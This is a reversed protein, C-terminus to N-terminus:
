RIELNGNRLFITYEFQRDDALNRSAKAIGDVLITIEFLRGSITLTAKPNPWPTVTSAARRYTEDYANVKVDIRYKDQYRADFKNLVESTFFLKVTKMDPIASLTSALSCMMLLMSKRCM